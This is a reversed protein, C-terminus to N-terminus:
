IYNYIHFCSCFLLVSKAFTFYLNIIFFFLIILYKNKKLKFYLSLSSILTIINMMAMMSASGMFGMVRFGLDFSFPYKGINAVTSIDYNNLKLIISTMSIITLIIGLLVFKKLFYEKTFNFNIIVNKALYYILFLYSGALFGLFSNFSFDNIFINPIFSIPYLFFVMDFKDRTLNIKLKFVIFFFFFLFCFFFIKKIKIFSSPHIIHKHYSFSLIFLLFFINFIKKIVLNKEYKM